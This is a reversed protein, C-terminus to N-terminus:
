NHSHVLENEDYIVTPYKGTFCATCQGRNPGEHNRGIANLLGELSIFELSDAGIEECIEEITNTAAILEERTSTDIGYYCPNKLPPAGIRVHVESAGADRLMQVIRRSTTGRVISDDVMVVRKGEVISRVPSLKMKVGQERLEQSPQIFTRAVYRNKILGLEYPIGSEEAYGVAASISSDPVGIVVDAEVPAENALVRGMNKRAAHVNINDINSDPRSFYIYEMSCITHNVSSTFQDTEVGNDSIILLEGPNIDRIYKAGVVDFACTESAVVYADGLKALALPRFGNPDLAVYMADKTLVLYAFAGKIMNLSAKISDKLPASGNRKILHALVETDSTTQFISGQMELDKRLRSANVLNGNHALAISGTHSQFLLPQVNEYGGGGATAYRVHGIAAKGHLDNLQGKSFVETILGLGKAGELENGNTVVIGAGEQGRHQLSHLGYYSIQAADTHGWIGFIGCEENLGKIEALM